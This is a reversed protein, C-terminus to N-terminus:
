FYVDSVYLMSVSFHRYGSGMGILLVCSFLLLCPADNHKADGTYTTRAHVMFADTRSATEAIDITHM